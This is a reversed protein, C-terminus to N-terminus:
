RIAGLCLVIALIAAGAAAVKLVAILKQRETQDLRSACPACLMKVSYYNRIGAYRQRLASNLAWNLLVNSSINFGTVSAGTHVTKRLGQGKSLPRGCLYCSAV